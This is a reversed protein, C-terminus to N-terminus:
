LVHSSIHSELLRQGAGMGFAPLILKMRIKENRRGTAFGALVRWLAVSVKVILFLKLM